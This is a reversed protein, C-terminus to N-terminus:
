GKPIKVVTGAAPEVGGALAPNAARIREATKRDGFHDRAISALTEGPQVRHQLPAPMEPVTAIGAFVVNPRPANPSAENKGPAPKAAPKAAAPAAAPKAGAAPAGTAAPTAAASAAAPAAPVPSAPAAATAPAAPSAAPVAPKAPTESM